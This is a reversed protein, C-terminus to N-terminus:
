RMQRKNWVAYPVALLSGLIMFTLLTPIFQQGYDSLGAIFFALGVNRAISAISLVSRQERSPGGLLHGITLALAVMILIAAIPLGGIKLIARFDPAIVLLVVILVLLLIFLVNGIVQVPKGIIKAFRPVFHQILLGIIVPLFTVEGVQLTVKFPTVRETALEFLNYFVALTLPTVVVASLALTLQLSAAYTPDGAAMQTRKTTLPAGPAAALIALGTAVAIPLDFVWILLGVVAPVLVIVALLSRLLL